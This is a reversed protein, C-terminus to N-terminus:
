SASAGSPVEPGRRYAASVDAALQWWSPDGRSVGVDPLKLVAEHLLRVLMRVEERSGAADVHESRLLELYLDTTQPSPDIGLDAALTHRLEAYARLAEARRGGASLARM